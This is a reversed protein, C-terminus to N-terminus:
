KQRVRILTPDGEAATPTSGARSKCYDSYFRSPGDGPHEEILRQFCAVAAARQGALFARLAEDFDALLHQQVSEADKNTGVIEAVRTESQRGRLQFRGLPRLLLNPVDEVAAESALLRTGMLKNLGEIRSVTNVTDGVMRYAFRDGAGVSGVYVPGAHLGMRASLRRHGTQASFSENAALIQLAARCARRRLARSPRRAIWAFLVSDATFEKFAVRSRQLPAALRDFYDNLLQAAAAPAMGEATGVFNEADMYLCVAYRTNGVAVPELPHDAIERVVREPVFLRFATAIQRRERRSNMVVLGLGFVTTLPLQILMPTVLPLWLNWQEFALQAAALYALALSLCGAVAWRTPQVHMLLTGAAAPLVLLLLVSLVPGVSRLTSDSAMNAFATAAIEVGSLRVGDSRTFVTDFGDFKNPLDRESYGVFVVAGDFDSKRSADVPFDDDLLQYYSFTRIAGPPGYYNLYHTDPGAYIQLLEMLLRDTTASDSDTGPTIAPRDLRSDTMAAQQVRTAFDPNALLETRLRQALDGTRILDPAAGGQATTLPLGTRNMLAPWDVGAWRSLAHMALTPLTPMGSVFAAFRHVRAPVTPVVFPGVGDAVASFLPLPTRVSDVQVGDRWSREFSKCLVVRGFREIAAALDADEGPERAREFYLDFVIVAAGLQMLRDILKAHLTRPWQVAQTPLELRDSSRKDLGVILVNPPPRVPGRVWFLWSLGFQEELTTGAPTQSFAAGLIGVTLAVAISQAWRRM